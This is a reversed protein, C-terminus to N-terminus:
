GLHWKDLLYFGFLRETGIEDFNPWFFHGFLM